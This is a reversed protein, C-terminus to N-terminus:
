CCPKSGCVTIGPCDTACYTIPCTPDDDSFLGVGYVAKMEGNNLNAITTKNLKLKKDFKKLKM